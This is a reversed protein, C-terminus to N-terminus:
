KKKITLLQSIDAIWGLWMQVQQMIAALKQEDTMTNDNWIQMIAMGLAVMSDKKIGLCLAGTWFIIWLVSQFGPDNANWWLILGKSHMFWIFSAILAIVAGTAISAKITIGKGLNIQIQEQKVYGHSLAWEEVEKDTLKSKEVTKETNSKVEEPNKEANKGVIEPATLEEQKTEESMELGRIINRLENVWNLSNLISPITYNSIM